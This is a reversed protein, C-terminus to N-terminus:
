DSSSDSVSSDRVPLLTVLDFTAYLVEEGSSVVFGVLDVLVRVFFIADDDARVFDVAEGRTRSSAELAREGVLDEVGGLFM